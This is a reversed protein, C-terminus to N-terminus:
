PHTTHSEIVDSLHKCAALVSKASDATRTQLTDTSPATLVVEKTTIVVSKLCDCLVNAASAVSNCVDDDTVHRAVADGIYVLKHGAVVVQKSTQVFVEPVVAGDTTLQCFETVASEVASALTRVQASYYTMVERDSASLLVPQDVVGNVVACRKAPDSLPPHTSASRQLSVTAPQGATAPQEDSNSELDRSISIYDYDDYKWTTTEKGVATASDATPPMPLPRLQMDISATRHGINPKPKLAPAQRRGVVPPSAVAAVSQKQDVSLRCIDAANSHLFVCFENVLPHLRDVLETLNTLDWSGFCRGENAKPSLALLVELCQSISAHIVTLPECHKALRTAVISDSNSDPIKGLDLLEKLATRLSLGTTTVLSCWHKVNGQAEKKSMETLREISRLIADHKAVIQRHFVDPQVVSEIPQRSGSSSTSTSLSSLQSSSHSQSQAPVDYDCSEEAQQSRPIDYVDQTEKLPMMNSMTVMSTRTSVDSASSEANPAVPVAAANRPVSYDELFSDRDAALAGSLLKSANMKRATEAAATIRGLDGAARPTDYVDRFSVEASSRASTSPSSGSRLSAVSSRSDKSIVSSMSSRNSSSMPDADLGVCTPVDYWTQSSHTLSPPTDYLLAGPMTSHIGARGASTDVVPPVDYDTQVDVHGSLSSASVSSRSDKQDGYHVPPLDYDLVVSRPCDYVYVNGSKYPVNVQVSCLWYSCDPMLEFFFSFNFV